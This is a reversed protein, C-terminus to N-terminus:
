GRPITILAASDAPLGVTDVGGHPRVSELQPAQPTGTLTSSFRHGGLTIDGTAAAGPAQLREVTASAAGYGSPAHVPVVASGAGDNVLLVRVHHDTGLTAWARISTQATTAIHLLRSGAPAAQAFMLAGLYLPHVTARWRHTSSAYSFDFLGNDSGPYTHLNVGDIGIRAADFLADTAWLASAFSNSVGPKGNCTVSGMEDVSLTAGARHARAILPGLSEYLGRSAGLSLLNGVSPYKPTGPTKDCNSLGYAHATLMRVRSHRSLETGFATLWPGTGTEPGSLPLRPMVRAFQAFQTQFAAPDWTAPRAYVPTGTKAYWPLRHGGSERYWPTRLYLNPENGIELAQVNAAGVRKVLEDAEVRAVLPSGAELNIGLMLRAGTNKVLADASRTWTPGLSATVGLPTRAGRVPWWSRDTTQGGVRISPRGAPSLNKILAPLVENTAQGPQATWQPVTNYELALGLFDSALPRTVPHRTVSVPFTTADAAGGGGLLAALAVLVITFRSSM